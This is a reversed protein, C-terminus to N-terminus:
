LEKIERLISQNYSRKTIQLCHEKERFFRLEQFDELLFSFKRRFLKAVNQNATTFFIQRNHSIAIERLFDMLALVNLDDINAVPEDLLLFSPVSSTVLNMQFFVSIVLATRQGTSMRSIPIEEENRFAVLKQNVIGLGSFEQPSHIALFIQSIQAVNQSIFSEAYAEPPQLKELEDCLIKCQGAKKTIEAKEIHLRKKAEQTQLSMIIDHALNYIHQCLAQVSEGSLSRDAIMPTIAEWFAAIQELQLSERKMQILQKRKQELSHRCLSTTNAQKELAVLNESLRGDYQNKQEEWDLQATFIATILAQDSADPSLSLYEASAESLLRQRSTLIDEITYSLNIKELERQLSERIQTAQMELTNLQERISDYEHRLDVGSQIKPFEERVANLANNYEQVITEQQNLKKLASKNRQIDNKIEHIAQYLSSLRQSGQAFEKELHAHLIEGTIGDTGCLPCTHRQKDLKYIEQGVSSLASFLQTRKGQSLEEQDIKDQVADLETNLSRCGKQLEQAEERLQQISKAPTTELIEAYKDIFQRLLLCKREYSLRQALCNEYNTIATKHDSRFQLQKIPPRLTQISHLAMQAKRSATLLDLKENSLANQLTEAEKLNESLQQIENTLTCYQNKHEALEEQLQTPSPVPALGKVKDYEALIMQTKGLLGELPEEPDFCLGSTALYTRLGIKDAPPVKVLEGIRTDLQALDEEYKTILRRCEEKYRELNRWMDITEPGYLIKSFADSLNPEEKAFLFTEDVSLYNFRHFLNQIQPATRSENRSRFLYRERAKKDASTRPPALKTAHGDIEATLLVESQVSSDNAGAPNRISGTMALEIASLVSTKGSGNLGYLLNVAQFPITWDKPYYHARFGRPIEISRLTSLKCSDPIETLFNTAKQMEITNSVYADLIKKSYENLCFGLGNKDLRDMWNESPLIMKEGTTDAQIRGVPVCESLYEMPIMLNRTYETNSSFSIRQQM